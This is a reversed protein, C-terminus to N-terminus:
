FPGHNLVRYQLLQDLEAQRKVYQVNLCIVRKGCANRQKLWVMQADRAQDRGGMPLAHLIFQYTTSLRVDADNLKRVQCITKETATLGKYGCDFSAAHSMSGLLLGAIGMLFYKGQSMKLTRELYTLDLTTTFLRTM